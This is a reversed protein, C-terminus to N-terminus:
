RGAECLSASAPQCEGLCKVKGNSDLMADGGRQTSCKVEGLDDMACYGLGCKVEGDRNRMAGGGERACLIKGYQDAACQGRGCVVNGNPDKICDGAEALTATMAMGLLLAALFGKNMVNSGHELGFPSL